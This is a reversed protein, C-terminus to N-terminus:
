DWKGLIGSQVDGSTCTHVIAPMQQVREAILKNTYHYANYSQNFSTYLFYIHLMYIYIYIYIYWNTHNTTHISEDLKGSFAQSYMALPVLICQLILMQQVVEPMWTQVHAKFHVDTSLQCRCVKLMISFTILLRYASYM